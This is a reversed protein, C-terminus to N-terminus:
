GNIKKNYNAQEESPHNVQRQQRRLDEEFMRIRVPSYNMIQNTDPRMQMDKELMKFVLFHLEMSYERPLPQEPNEHVIKKALALQNQALFPPNFTSLEYM